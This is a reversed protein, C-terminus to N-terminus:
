SQVKALVSAGLIVVFEGEYISFSVNDVCKVTVNGTKYKKIVNKFEILKKNM